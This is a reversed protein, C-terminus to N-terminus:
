KGGYLLQLKAFFDELIYRSDITEYVEMLRGNELPLWATDEGVLRVPHRRVRGCGPHLMVGVAPSDGLAWSEGCTWGAWPGNNYDVMQRFLYAGVEGCPRVKAQLEALGVRMQTYTSIPILTLPVSSQLVMNAADVDNGFNFERGHFPDAEDFSRGGISVVRLREAIDPARRLACAVNTLAGLCLVALPHSDERRAEEIIFRVGESIAEDQGLPGQQGRLTLPSLEMARTLRHIAEFSREMSHEQAFHEAIVAKVLLKPSMLAHAIAFPDDAECAADTDLIVRVRKADPVQYLLAM